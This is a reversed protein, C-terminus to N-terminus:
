EFGVSTPRLRCLRPSCGQLESNIIWVVCQWGMWYERSEVLQGARDGIIGIVLDIWKFCM